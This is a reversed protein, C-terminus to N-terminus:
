RRGDVATLASRGRKTIAWETRGAGDTHGTPAVLGLKAMRILITEQQYCRPNKLLLRYRMNAGLPKLSGTLDYGRGSESGSAPAAATRPSSSWALQMIPPLAQAALGAKKEKPFFDTPRRM